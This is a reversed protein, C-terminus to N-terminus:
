EENLRLNKAMMQTFLASDAKLPQLEGQPIFGFSLYLAIAAPNTTTVSLILQDLLADEAWAIIHNLLAHGMGMGRAEPTVWMQYVHAAKSDPDHILGWALGSPVGDLEAVLPLANKARDQRDLRSIWEDDSYDAESEYSSGFSDPSDQLSRLRLSKYLAWDDKNLTRINIRDMASDGTVSSHTAEIVELSFNSVSFCVQKLPTLLRSDTVWHLSWGSLLKVNFYLLLFEV